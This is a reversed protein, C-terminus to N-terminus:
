PSTNQADSLRALILAGGVLLLSLALAAARYGFTSEDFLTLAITWTLNGLANAGRDCLSFAGWIEGSKGSPTLGVLMTRGATQAGAIGLGILPGAVFPFLWRQPPLLLVAFFLSWIIVVCVLTRKAGVRAILPRFLAAAGIAGSVIAPVYLLALDDASFGVINRVYLGMFAPVALCVSWILSYAGLFRLLEAHKTAESITAKVREFSLQVSARRGTPLFDPATLMAPLTLLLYWLAMPVFVKGAENEAVVSFTFALLSLLSGVFGIAVAGSVVESPNRGASAAPLMATYFTFAGNACISACAFTIMAPWFSGAAPIMLTFGVVGLAFWRLYPRRPGAIDAAAGVIPWLLAVLAAAISLAWGYEVGPRHLVHEVYVSFFVFAVVLTWSSDAAEFLQYSLVRYYPIPKPIRATRLQQRGRPLRVRGSKQSRNV